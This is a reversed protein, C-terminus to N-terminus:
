TGLPTQTLLLDELTQRRRILNMQDDRFLVEAPLIRANYSSAMEFGYAGANRICLVDGERILPLPRDEAFTDTECINGVVSYAKKEAQPNSLNDIQHFAEYFMPRILQNLGTDVGAFEISGSKKLVNVTCLLSGAEAVFYKGPEFWIELDIGSRNEFAYLHQGIAKALAELDTGKEDDSYPVKFGGGLDIVQLHPFNPALDFLLDLGKLFVDVEKIESGTHIHLVRVHLDKERILQYVAPLDSLAIGFKSRGHGTSIQLNGGAMIDPRIRIGVPYSGRNAEAFKQLNSVSDINIHVGLSRAEAIEDFSVSNSTYLIQDPRFGAKIALKVENLSSCDVDSGIHRVHDLIHLNTLAKAAYFFRAPMGAFAKTLHEFQHTIREAHYVYLPTGYRHAAELLQGTTLHPTM